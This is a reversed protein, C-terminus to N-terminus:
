RTTRCPNSVGYTIGDWSVGKSTAWRYKACSSGSASNYPATDFNMPSSATGKNVENINVVCKSGSTGDDHWYDPCDGIVPPWTIDKSNNHMTIAIIVMMVFLVAIAIYIVIRQFSM